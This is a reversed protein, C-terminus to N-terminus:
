VKMALYIKDDAEQIFKIIDIEELIKSKKPLYGRSLQKLFAQLKKYQSIDVDKYITLCSRLMSYITWLTSPKYKTCQLQFYAILANESIVHLEKVKCWEEFKIYQKEYNSRSKTPLLNNVANEAIERIEPPTCSITASM